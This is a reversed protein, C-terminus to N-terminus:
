SACELTNRSLDDIAVILEFDEVIGAGGVGSMGEQTLVM